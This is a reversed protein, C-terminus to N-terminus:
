MLNDFQNVTELKTITMKTQSDLGYLFFRYPTAHEIKEPHDIQVVSEYNPLSGVKLIYREINIRM